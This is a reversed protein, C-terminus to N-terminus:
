LWKWVKETRSLRRSTFSLAVSYATMFYAVDLLPGAFMYLNAQPISGFHQLFLAFAAVRVACMVLEIALCVAIMCLRESFSLPLLMSVVTLFIPAAALTLLGTRTVLMMFPAADYGVTGNFFGYLASAGLVLLNANIWYRLPTRRGHLTSSALLTLACAAATWIAAAMGVAPMSSVPVEYVVGLYRDRLIAGADAGHAALAALHMLPAWAYRLIAYVAVVGLAFALVTSANEGLTTRFTRHSRFPRPPRAAIVNDPLISSSM